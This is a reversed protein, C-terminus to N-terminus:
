KKDCAPVAKIMAEICKERAKSYGVGFGAILSLTIGLFFEKKSFM